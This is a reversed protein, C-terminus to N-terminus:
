AKKIIEIKGKQNRNGIHFRLRFRDDINNYDIYNIQPHKFGYSEMANKKAIKRAQVDDKAITGINVTKGNSDSINVVYDFLDIIKSKM